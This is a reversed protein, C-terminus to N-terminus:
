AVVQSEFERITDLTTAPTQCDRLAPLFGPRQIMRALRALVQLHTEVDRLLVLFYIDTLEGHPAGFPIGSSTRGYAVMSDGLVDAPLRRPHPLAIGGELATTALEERERLHALVVDPQYIQWGRNAVEVLERLVGPATRANLPVEVTEETLLDGVLHTLGSPRPRGRHVGQEVSRLQQDSFSHFSEELWHHVDSRNFKWEGGVRRGPLRGRAAMKELDRADRQLFQALEPLDFTEL